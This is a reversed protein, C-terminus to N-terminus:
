NLELIRKGRLVQVDKAAIKLILYTQRLLLDQDM